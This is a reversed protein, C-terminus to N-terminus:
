CDIGLQTLEPELHKRLYDHFHAMGFELPIQFPGADREGRANLARRGRDMHDAIVGDEIATEIYAAQHAKIIEPREDVVGRPYFFDVVNTTLDPAKAIVHSIILAEPYWEIMVNPYYCFWLAGFQPPGGRYELVLKQYALYKESPSRTLDRGPELHQNAWRDGFQWHNLSFQDCAILSTLGPHFPEVHLLEIYFEIFTKWNIPYDEVWSGEYVYGGFDFAWEFDFGALDLAVNRAGAFLLGHWNQLPRSALNRGPNMGFRPASLQQGALNYTWRHLPCVINRVNGRGELIISQRHRCVNSMLQVDDANRVLAWGEDWSLTHYSGTEPVQLDHGVYGPGEDFLRRKELALVRPDLYWSTPIGETAELHRWANATM